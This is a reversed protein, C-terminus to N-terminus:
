YCVVHVQNVADVSGRQLACTARTLVPCHGHRGTGRVSTSYTDLPTHSARVGRSWGAERVCSDTGQWVSRGGM